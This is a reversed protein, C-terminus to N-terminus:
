ILDLIKLYRRLGEELGIPELGLSHKLLSIDAQTAELYKSPKPVYRPKINKGLLKNILNIVENFTYSRGSGVNIIPPVNKKEASRILAEVIDDIYVFDRRQTGNGYVIPSEDNIISNLFITIPSAIRGKHEEGPGYGAFIRLGVSRVKDIYYEAIKECTLKAIGYLNM